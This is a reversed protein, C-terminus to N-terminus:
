ISSILDDDDNSEFMSTAGNVKRCNLRIEGDSGTLPSINAMNIMAQAFSEFFASQNSSFNKVIPITDAGPTSYLEQDSQLIGENSELNSFYVNDFTDPTNPDLNTLLSGNGDNPCINQLEELLTTNLTPDPNGTNNFNYLRANIIICRVRGFTHAGSLAVLDTADLGVAAFKSELEDLTDIPSPITTNAATQNATLSDRRGLLVTWSPGGSLVVSVEAAITLIDACSVVGPCANELATKINDLVDFGRTSNLNPLADKESQISDSNDLLLSADCGQVFCDHFPLRTLSATIRPDSQLADKITQQVITFVDPCTTNYFNADLQATSGQIMMLMSSLCLLLAASAVTLTTSSSSSMKLSISSM